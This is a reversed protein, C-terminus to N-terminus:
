TQRVVQVQIEEWQFDLQLQAMEVLLNELLAIDNIETWSSGNWLEVAQATGPAFMRWLIFDNRSNSVSAQGYIRGTNIEAIETWASGNWSEVLTLGSPATRWSILQM